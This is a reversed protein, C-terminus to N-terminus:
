CHSPKLHRQSLGGSTNTTILVFRGMENAKFLKTITEGSHLLIGLILSIPIILILRFLTKAKDLEEPYDIELRAAYESM